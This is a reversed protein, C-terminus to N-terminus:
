GPRTKRGRRVKQIRWWCSTQNPVSAGVTQKSYTLTNEIAPKEATVSVGAMQVAETALAANVPTTVDINVSVGEATYGAYGIMSFELDYSGPSLNIIYYEGNADSSAGFPTGKVLVNCGALGEGSQGDTVTGAIKGTQGAFAFVSILLLIGAIHMSKRM